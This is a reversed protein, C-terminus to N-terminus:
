DQPTDEAADGDTDQAQEADPSAAVIVQAPRVVRDGAIYGKRLEEIVVGHPHDDTPQQMVAEHFEPDFPKGVAEMPRIDHAELIKCLQTEVMRVGQAFAECHADPTEALADFARGFDDLLPLLGAMVDRVTDGRLAVIERRVRRQYNALEARSRQLLDLYTDSEAAKEQLQDLESKAIAVLEDREAQDPSSDDGQPQAEAPQHKQSEPERTEEEAFGFM